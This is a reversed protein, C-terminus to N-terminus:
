PSPSSGPLREDNCQQMIHALMGRWGFSTGTSASSSGFGGSGRSKLACLTAWMVHRLRPGSGMLGGTCYHVIILVSCPDVVARSDGVVPDELESRDAALDAREVPVPDGSLLLHVMGKFGCVQGVMRVVASHKGAVDYRLEGVERRRDFSNYHDCRLALRQHCCITLYLRCQRNLLHLALQLLPSHLLAQLSPKSRHRVNPSPQSPMYIRWNMDARPVTNAQWRWRAVM